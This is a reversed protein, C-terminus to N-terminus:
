RWVVTGDPRILLPESVTFRRGSKWARTRLVVQFLGDRRELWRVPETEVKDYAGRSSGLKGLNGREVASVDAAVWEGTPQVIFALVASGRPRPVSIAVATKTANWVGAWVAEDVV